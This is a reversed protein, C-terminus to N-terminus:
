PEPARGALFRIHRVTRCVIALALLTIGVPTALVVVWRFPGGLAFAAPEGNEWAIGVLGAGYWIVAIAFPLVFFLTGAIEIWARLRPGYRERFIDVRVHADSVAAAGVILFAFLLFFEAEMGNFLSGPINFPRTVIETLRSIMMTPLFILAAILGIRRILWETRGILEM